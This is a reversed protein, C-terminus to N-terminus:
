IIDQLISILRRIGDPESLLDDLQKKLDHSESVSIYDEVEDIEVICHSDTGEYYYFGGSMDEYIECIVMPKKEKKELYGIFEAIEAITTEPTIKTIM